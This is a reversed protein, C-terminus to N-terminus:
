RTRRACGRKVVGGHLPVQQYEKKFEGARDFPDEFARAQCTLHAHTPRVLHTAGPPRRRLGRRRQRWEHRHRAIRHRPGLSSAKVGQYPVPSARVMLSAGHRICRHTWRWVRVMLRMPARVHDRSGYEASETPLRHARDPIPADHRPGNQCSKPSTAGRERTALEPLVSGCQLPCPRTLLPMRAGLRLRPKVLGYHMLFASCRNGSLEDSSRRTCSVKAQPM